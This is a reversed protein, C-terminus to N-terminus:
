SAQAQVGEGAKVVTPRLRFKTPRGGEATVRKQEVLWMVVNRVGNVTRFTPWDDRSRFIEPATAAGGLRRIQDEILSASKELAQRGKVEKAHSPRRSELTHQLEIAAVVEEYRKYETPAARKLSRLAREREAELLELQISM